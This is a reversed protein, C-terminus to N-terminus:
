PTREYCFCTSASPDGRLTHHVEFHPLASSAHLCLVWHTKAAAMLAKSFVLLRSHGASAYAQKSSQRAKIFPVPLTLDNSTERGSKRM